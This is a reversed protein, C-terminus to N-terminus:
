KTYYNSNLSLISTEKNLLNKILIGDVNSLTRDGNLNGILFHGTLENNYYNYREDDIGLIEKITKEDRIYKDMENKDNETLYGDGDVDAIFMKNYRLGNSKDEDNIDKGELKKAEELTVKKWNYFILVNDSNGQDYYVVFKHGDVGTEKSIKALNTMTEDSLVYGTNQCYEIQYDALNEKIQAIDYDYAVDRTKKFLGVNASLNITVGVLILMVIITIILAILTIGNKNKM